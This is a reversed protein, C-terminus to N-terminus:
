FGPCLPKSKIFNIIPLCKLKKLLLSLSATTLSVQNPPHDTLPSSLPITLHRSSKQGVSIQEAGENLCNTNGSCRSRALCRKLHQLSLLSQSQCLRHRMSSVNQHPVRHCCSSASHGSIFPLVASPPPSGGCGARSQRSEEPLCTLGGM